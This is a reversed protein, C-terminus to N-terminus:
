SVLASATVFMKLDVGLEAIISTATREKVGPINNLDPTLVGYKSKFLKGSDDM